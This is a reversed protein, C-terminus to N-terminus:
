VIYHRYPDIVSSKGAGTPGMVSSFKTLVLNTEARLSVWPIVIDSDRPDEVKMINQSDELM